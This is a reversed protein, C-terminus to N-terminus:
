RGSGALVGGVVLLQGRDAGGPLGADLLRVVAKQAALVPLDLLRHIGGAGRDARRVQRLRRDRAVVQAEGDVGRELLRGLRRDRLADRDRVGVTLRGVEARDHGHVRGVARDIRHRRRGGVARHHVDRGELARVHQVGLVRERGAVVLRELARIRGSRRELRDGGRRRVLRAEEGRALLEVAGAVDGGLPVVRCVWVLEEVPRRERHPLHVEGRRELDRAVREEVLEPVVERGSPFPTGPSSGCTRSRGSAAAPHPRRGPRSRASRPTSPRGSRAPCARTLLLDLPDPQGAVVDRHGDALAVQEDRRQLLRDGVAREFVAAVDDGRVDALRDQLGAARGLHDRGAPDVGLRLPVQVQGRREQRLDLGPRYPAVWAPVAGRGRDEAVELRRHVALGAGGLHRGGVARVAGVCPPGAPRRLAAVRQDDHREDVVAAVAADRGRRHGCAHELLEERGFRRKTNWAPLSLERHGVVQAM